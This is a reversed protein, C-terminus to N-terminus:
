RMINTFMKTAMLPNYVKAKERRELADLECKFREVSKEYDLQALDIKYIEMCSDYIIDICRILAPVSLALKNEMAVCDCPKVSLELDKALAKLYPKYSKYKRWVRDSNIAMNYLDYLKNSAPVFEKRIPESIHGMDVAVEICHRKVVPIYFTVFRTANNGYIM